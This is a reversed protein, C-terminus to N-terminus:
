ALAQGLGLRLEALRHAEPWAEALRLRIEARDVRPLAVVDHSDRHQTVREDVRRPKALRPPVEPGRQAVVPRAQGAAALHGWGGHQETLGRRDQRVVR